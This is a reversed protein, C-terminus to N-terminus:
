YKEKKSNLISGKDMDFTHMPKQNDVSTQTETPIQEIFFKLRGQLQLLKDMNRVRKEMWEIFQGLQAHM